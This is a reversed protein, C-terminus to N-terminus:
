GAKGVGDAPDRRNGAHWSQSRWARRLAWRGKPGNERGDVQTPSVETGADEVALAAADDVPAAPGSPLRAAQAALPYGAAACVSPAVAEAMRAYGAASPHFRDSSFMADPDADFVPGLLDSLSVTSAGASVAAVTQASALQRSIRRAITRLPQAVPRLTGLDPCTGVVVESGWQRLRSVCASLHQVSTQVRVKSTIDNGGIVVVTVDIKGLPNGQDARAAEILDLQAQLEQSEAGVVALTTLRVPRGGAEVLATALLAGPVQAASECGLGAAGSDGLIVLHLAEGPLEAGFLGDADPANDGFPQGILRRALSAEAVLVGYGAAALGALGGGTVAAITAARNANTM